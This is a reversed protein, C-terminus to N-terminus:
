SSIQLYAYLGHVGNAGGRDHTPPLTAAMLGYPSGVFASKVGVNSTFFGYSLHYTGPPPLFVANKSAPTSVSTNQIPLFGMWPHTAQPPQARSPHQANLSMTFSKMSFACFASPKMKPEGTYKEPMFPLRMLKMSRTKKAPGFCLSPLGKAKQNLFTCVSRNLDKDDEVVLLKFM